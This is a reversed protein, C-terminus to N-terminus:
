QPLVHLAGAGVCVCGCVCVCVCVCLRVCVHKSMLVTLGCVCENPLFLSCNSGVEIGGILGGRM